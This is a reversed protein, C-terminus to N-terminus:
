RFLATRVRPRITTGERKRSTQPAPYFTFNVFSLRVCSFFQECKQTSSSAYLFQFVLESSCFAMEACVRVCVRTASFNVTFKRVHVTLRLLKKKGKSGDVDSGFKHMWIARALWESDSVYKYSRKEWLSRYWWRGFCRCERRFWGTCVFVWNTRWVSCM